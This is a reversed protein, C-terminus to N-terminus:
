LIASYLNGFSTITVVIVPSLNKTSKLNVKFIWFGWGILPIVSLIIVPTQGVGFLRPIIILAGSLLLLYKTLRDYDQSRVSFLLLAIFSLLYLLLGIRKMIDEGFYILSIGSSMGVHISNLIKSEKLVSYILGTLCAILTIILSMKITYFTRSM